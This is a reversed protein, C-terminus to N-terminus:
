KRLATDDITLVAAIYIRNKTNTQINLKKWINSLQNFADSVKQIRASLEYDITGDSSIIVGLYTFDSVQLVLSGEITIDVTGEETFPRQTTNKAVAMVETKEANIRLKLGAQNAYKSLLDTTEELGDKNNLNLLALDDAFNNDLITVEEHSVTTLRQLVAGHSLVKNNEVRQAALNLCVNCIPPSQIDRQGTGSSVDFWPSLEGNYKVAFITDHFFAQL